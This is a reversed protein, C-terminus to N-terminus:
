GQPSIGEAEAEGSITTNDLSPQYLSTKQTLGQYKLVIVEWVKHKERIECSGEARNYKVTAM